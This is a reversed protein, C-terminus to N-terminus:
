MSRFCLADCAKWSVFLMGGEGGFGSLLVSELRLYLLDHVVDSFGLLGIAIRPWRAYSKPFCRFVSRTHQKSLSGVCIWVFCRVVHAVVSGRHTCPVCSVRQLSAPLRCPAEIEACYSLQLGSLNHTM